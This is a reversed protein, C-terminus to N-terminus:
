NNSICSQQQSLPRQSTALDGGAARQTKIEAEDDTPNLNEKQARQDSFQLNGLRLSYLQECIQQFSSPTQPPKQKYKIKAQRNCKVPTNRLYIQPGNSQRSMASNCNGGNTMINSQANHYSLGISKSM